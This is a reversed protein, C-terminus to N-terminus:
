GRATSDRLQRAVITRTTADSDVDAHASRVRGFSIVM